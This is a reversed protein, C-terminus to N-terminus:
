DCPLRDALPPLRAPNEARSRGHRLIRAGWNESTGIDGGVHRLEAPVVEICDRLTEGARVYNELHHVFSVPSEEFDTDPKEKYWFAIDFEEVYYGHAETIYFVLRNKGSQTNVEVQISLDPEEPPESGPLDRERLTKQKERLSELDEDADLESDPEEIAEPVPRNIKYAVGIALVVAVALLIVLRPSM